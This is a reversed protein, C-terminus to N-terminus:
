YSVGAAVADRILDGDKFATLRNGFSKPPVGGELLMREITKEFLTRNIKSDLAVMRFIITTRRQIPGNDLLPRSRHWTHRNFLLADGLDLSCEQKVSELYIKDYEGVWESPFQARYAQEYVAGKEKLAKDALQYHAWQKLRQKGSFDTQHAWSMGGHQKNVDIPTLPLWLTHAPSDIDVFSFSYEDFHWDFGGKKGAELELIAVQTIAMEHGTLQALVPLFAQTLHKFLEDRNAFENSFRDFAQIVGDPQDEQKVNRNVSNRLDHILTPDFMKRIPFIGNQQYLASDAPTFSIDQTLLPSPPCVTYLM